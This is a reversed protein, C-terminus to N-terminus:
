DKGGELEVESLYGLETLVEMVKPLANANVAVATPGLLAGLFRGARSSRLTQLLEPSSLRLVLLRQFRVETGKEDWRELARALAPPVSEAYRRLLGLLHGVKLGHSRARELAAPTAQYAYGDEKEGAWDCFRALQYRASRPARRPAWLKGDSRAIIPADEKVLGPPPQGQLLHTAWRSYRFAAPAAGEAPAALDLVGLWHLPGSLIFHILAGDVREWNEFGTVYDGTALDRLYWSEYDGLPRQFDPESQHVASVLSGLSWYAAQGVLREDVIRGQSTYPLFSIVAKRAALPDNEWEGEANLGPLLRLENFETSDLWARWLLALAEGRECELFARVPEALPQGAADILGAINLLRQLLAPTPNGQWLSSMAEAPLELRLAALLTCAHDVIHDDAPIMFARESPSAPRGLLPPTNGALEPLLPIMEEPIYAYEEPTAGADFFARGILGRYWLMETPTPAHAYPRERDRRGPGMERIGGHRRSFLAWPLRGDNQLLDALAAQAPAALESVLTQLAAEDLMLQALRQVGVRADPANLDLDWLEAIIRLRGLDSGQLSERLDPM